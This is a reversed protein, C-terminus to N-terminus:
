VCVLNAVVVCALGDINKHYSMKRNKSMPVLKLWMKDVGDGVHSDVKTGETRPNGHCWMGLFRMNDDNRM